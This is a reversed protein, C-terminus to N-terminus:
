VHARGIKAQPNFFPEVFGSWDIILDKPVKDLVRKYDELTMMSQRDKKDKFYRNLLLSQPCYKCNVSCGIKPTVELIPRDYREKEWAFNDSIDEPLDIVNVFGSEALTQRVKSEGREKFGILIVADKVIIDPDFRKVPIGDVKGVNGDLTTVMFSRVRVNNNKSLDYLKRAYKGAGYIYVPLDNDNTLNSIYQFYEISKM